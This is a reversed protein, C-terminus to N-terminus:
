KIKFRNRYSHFQRNLKEILNREVQNKLDELDRLAYNYENSVQGNSGISFLYGDRQTQSGYNRRLTEDFLYTINRRLENQTNNLVVDYNTLQYSTSTFYKKYIDNLVENLTADLQRQVSSAVNSISEAHSVPTYRVNSNVLEYDSHDYNNIYRSRPTTDYVPLTPYLTQYGPRVTSSSYGYRM